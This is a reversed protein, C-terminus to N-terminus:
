LSCELSTAIERTLQLYFEPDHPTYDSYTFPGVKKPVATEIQTGEHWENFSTVSVVGSNQGGAPGLRNRTAAGAMEKYYQGDGRSKTNGQNWPRVRIDTYGPGFSPIFLLNNKRAFDALEAWNGTASGHSFGNSAFYTYFGDFGGNLIEWKHNREVLLGIVVCDLETGRISNPRGPKLLEAWEHAGTVYSDYIYVLPLKGHRYFAPHASYQDLIYALDRRVSASTRGRYPEIHFAVKVSYAQAVDLLLPVLPDPPFGEDDGKGKPYWSVAAVGIGAQRMQYMHTEMTRPDRSSYCGLQPYFSAGIDDPPVHRGQSYRKAISPNWHPLYRHDWHYYKSDFTPNGYWMYYFTHVCPSPPPLGSLSFATRNLVQHPTPPRTNHRQAALRSSNPSSSLNKFNIRQQMPPQSFNSSKNSGELFGNRRKFNFLVTDAIGDHVVDQDDLPAPHPATLDLLGLGRELSHTRWLYNYLALMLLLYVLSLIVIYRIRIAPM